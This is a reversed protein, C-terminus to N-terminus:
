GMLSKKGLLAYILSIQGVHYTEHWAMFCVTGSVKGDASPPGPKPAPQAVSEDTANEMASDLAASVERFADKLTDPSPYAASEDLKEGRAFLGLWPASWNGGLRSVVAKRSWILHGMVWAIHNCAGEPRKFWEDHSLDNVFKTAFNNNYHFEDAAHAIAAPVPM